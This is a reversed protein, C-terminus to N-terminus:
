YYSFWTFKKQLKQLFKEQHEWPFLNRTIHPQKIIRKRINVINYHELELFDFLKMLIHSPNEILQELYLTHIKRSDKIVNDIGRCCQEYKDILDQAKETSYDRYIAGMNDLPNRVVHIIYIPLGLHQELRDLIHINQYIRRATAGAKKSGIVQLDRHRGNWNGKIPEMKTIKFDRLKPADNDGSKSEIRQLIENKSLGQYYERIVDLERGIIVNPHSDLITSVLTSGSKTYGAFLAFKNM